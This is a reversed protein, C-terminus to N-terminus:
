QDLILSYHCVIAENGPKEMSCAVSLQTPPSQSHPQVFQPHYVCVRVCVCVEATNNPFLWRAPRFCRSCHKTRPDVVHLVIFINTVLIM